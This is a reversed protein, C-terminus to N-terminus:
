RGSALLIRRRRTTCRLPVVGLFAALPLHAWWGLRTRLVQPSELLIMVVRTYLILALHGVWDRNRRERPVLTRRRLRGCLQERRQLWHRRGLGESV